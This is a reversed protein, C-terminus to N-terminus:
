PGESDLEQTLGTHREAVAKEPLIDRKGAATDQEMQLDWLHAGFEAYWARFETLEAPSLRKVADEVDEITRM